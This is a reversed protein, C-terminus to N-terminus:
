LYHASVFVFSLSRRVNASYAAMRAYIFIVIFLRLACVCVCLHRLHLRRCLDHRILVTTTDTPTTGITPQVVLADRVCLGRLCPSVTLTLPASMLCAADMALTIGITLQMVPVDRLAGRPSAPRTFAVGDCLCVRCDLILLM